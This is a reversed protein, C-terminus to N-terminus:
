RSAYYGARARVEARPLRKRAAESLAVRIRRFSGAPAEPARYHISYRTRLREMMEQFAAGAREAKVAEGGTEEALRFVDSPTFDPNVYEGPRPPKPREGGRAVIANLVCDAEYLARVVQENPTQYNLGLNDTLILIARRGPRAPQRGAYAAAALLAENIATGAGLGQERVAASMERAVEAFDATFEESVKSRRSFLMVAVRDAAHLQRLAERAVQAMEEVYRRMSGSVDLLLLVDLPESERGFYAVEQRQGEDFVEFDERGLGAVLRKGDVVQADVRVMTVDSRFVPTEQEQAFAALALLIFLLGMLFM